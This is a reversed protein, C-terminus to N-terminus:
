QLAAIVGIFSVMTMRYLLSLAKSESEEEYYNQKKAELLNRERSISPELRRKDYQDRGSYNICLIYCYGIKRTAVKNKERLRKATTIGNAEGTEFKSVNGNAFEMWIKRKLSADGENCSNTMFQSHIIDRDLDSTFMTQM